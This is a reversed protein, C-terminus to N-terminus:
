PPTGRGWRLPMCVYFVYDDSGFNDTGGMAGLLGILVCGSMFFHLSQLMQGNM